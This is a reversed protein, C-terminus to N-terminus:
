LQRINLCAIKKAPQPSFVSHAGPWCFLAAQKASKLSKNESAFIRHRWALLGSSYHKDSGALCIANPHAFVFNTNRAQKAM